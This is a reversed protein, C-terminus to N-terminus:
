VFGRMRDQDILDACDMGSQCALETGVGRGGACDGAMYLGRVLTRHGPRRDGVQDPTQATTVAAGSSKGVWGATARVSFLDEFIINERLGPIMAYLTNRLNNLWAKEGDQLEVDTTPAVACATIIQQGPPALSPDFNSPIPSYVPTYRPLIGSDMQRFTELLMSRNIEGKGITLPSGGVVCGVDTVKKRVGIKAQVAIYSGKIAEVREIYAGTLHEKGAMRFMTDRISSTSVVVPARFESGDKLRVGETHGQNILIKEVPANLLTRAGHMEAGRLFTRPIAAAGGAPYGLNNDRVFHQLNWISEGASAQWTPLIFYLGLLFGLAGHVFSDKTYRTMFEDITRHDWKEIEEPPMTLIDFLMKAMVPLASIPLGSQYLGVLGFYPLMWQEPPTKLNMNIGRFWVMRKTHKFRLPEGMGLRRTCEGFPGKNGRIFMHTGMDVHFGDKEYYSCSGGVRPNKELILTRFGHSALIAGCASGGMGTGIVIADYDPGERKGPGPRRAPKGARRGSSAIRPNSQAVTM